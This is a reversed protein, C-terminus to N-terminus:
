QPGKGYGQLQWMGPVQITGWKAADFEKEYFDPADFPSKALSFKWTGSLSLTRSKSPDRTLADTVTDYVFFSARPPLTNRHLVDLNSWDPLEKPFTHIETMAFTDNQQRSHPHANDQAQAQQVNINIYSDSGYTEETWFIEGIAAPRHEQEEM